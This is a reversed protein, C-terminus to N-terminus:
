LSDSTNGTVIINLTAIQSQGSIDYVTYHVAPVNGSFTTLPLFAWTGNANLVFAGVNLIQLEQGLQGILNDVTYQSIAYSGGGGTIGYLVNGSINTNMQTTATINNSVVLIAPSKVTIQLTSPDANNITDTVIYNIYLTSDYYTPLPNFYWEGNSNIILNGINSIVLPQNLTGLYDDITFSAVTYSGIGGTANLLVNGSSNTYWGSYVEENGDFVAPYVFPSGVNIFLVANGASGNQNYVTYSIPPVAGSFGSEPFFEWVGHISINLTGTNSILYPQGIPVSAGSVLISTVNYNGDDVVNALLNGNIPTNYETSVSQDSVISTSHDSLNDQGIINQIELIYESDLNESSM